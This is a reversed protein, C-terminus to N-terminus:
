RRRGKTHRKSVHRKARPKPNEVGRPHAPEWTEERLYHCASPSLRVHLQRLCPDTAIEHMQGLTVPTALRLVVCLLATM